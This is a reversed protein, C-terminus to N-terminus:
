RDRGLVGHRTWSVPLGSGLYSPATANGHHYFNPEGPNLDRQVVSTASLDGWAVASPDKTDCCAGLGDPWGALHYLIIQHVFGKQSPFRVLSLSQAGFQEPGRQTWRDWYEPTAYYCDAIRFDANQRFGAGTRLHAPRDPAFAVSQADEGLLLHYYDGNNFWAGGIREGRIEHTQWPGTRYRALEPRFIVPPLEKSDNAYQQTLIALQRVSSLSKTRVAGLRSASLRPVLLSMLVMIVGISVLLEAVTFATRTNKM